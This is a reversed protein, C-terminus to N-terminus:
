AVVPASGPDSWAHGQKDTGRKIKGGGPEHWPCDLSISQFPPLSIGSARMAETSEYFVGRVQLKCVMSIRTGRLQITKGDEGTVSFSGSAKASPPGVEEVTTPVLATEPTTM